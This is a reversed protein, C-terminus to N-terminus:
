VSFSARRENLVLSVSIPDPGLVAPPTSLGGGIFGFLGGGFYDELPDVAAAAPTVTPLDVNLRGSRDYTRLDLQYTNHVQSSFSLQLHVIEGMAFRRRGNEIRVTLSVGQPNEALRRRHETEFTEQASAGPVAAFQLLVCATLMRRMLGGSLSRGPLGPSPGAAACRHHM